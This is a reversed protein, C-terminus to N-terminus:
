SVTVTSLTAIDDYAITKTQGGGDLSVSTVDLVGEVLAVAQVIRMGYVDDGPTLRSFVEAVALQVASTLSAVTSGAQPTIVLAVTTSNTGAWDWSVVREVGTVLDTVTASQAGDMGTGLGVRNYLVTAAANRQTTTLSSPYLVARVSHASVGSTADLTDTDNSAVSASLVGDSAELAARIGAVSRNSGAATVKTLQSIRYSADTEIDSGLAADAANTVTDWGTIATGITTISAAPAAIPGTVTCIAVVDVTGPATVLEVQESTAWLSLNDPGGGQVLSGAPIITGGTGTLTVTVSSSTAPGRLVGAYAGIDDLQVGQANDRLRSDYVARLTESLEGLLEATLNLLWGLPQDVSLDYNLGTAAFAAIMTTRFQAARTAIFGSSTLPM